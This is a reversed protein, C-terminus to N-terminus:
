VTTSWAAVRPLGPRCVNRNGYLVDGEPDHSNFTFNGHIQKYTHTDGFEDYNVIISLACGVVKGNIAIALQGKPFIELLKRIHKEGWCPGGMGAYAEKMSRCLDMYDAAELHRLEIIDQQENTM